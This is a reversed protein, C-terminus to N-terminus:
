SPNNGGLTPSPVGIRRAWEKLRRSHKEYSEILQGALREIEKVWERVEAATQGEIKRALALIADLQLASGFPLMEKAKRSSNESSEIVSPADNNMM